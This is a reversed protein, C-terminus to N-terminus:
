QIKKDQLHPKDWDYIKKRKKGLALLTPLKEKEKPWKSNRKTM